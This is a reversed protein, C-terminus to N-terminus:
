GLPYFTCIESVGAIAGAVFQYGFPLAIFWFEDSPNLNLLRDLCPRVMTLVILARSYSIYRFASVSWMRSHPCLGVLTAPHAFNVLNYVPVQVSRRLLARPAFLFILACLLCPLWRSLGVSRVGVEICCCALDQTAVTGILSRVPTRPLSFGARHVLLFSSKM